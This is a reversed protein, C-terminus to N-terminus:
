RRLYYPHIGTIFNQDVDIADRDPDHPLGQENRHVQFRILGAARREDNRQCQAGAIVRSPQQGDCILQRSAIAQERRTPTRFELSGDPGANQTNRLVKARLLTAYRAGDRDM